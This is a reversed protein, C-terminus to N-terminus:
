VYVNNMSHLAGEFLKARRLNLSQEEYIHIFKLITWTLVSFMEAQFTTAWPTRHAIIGSAM